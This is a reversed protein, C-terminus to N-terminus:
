PLGLVYSALFIQTIQSLRTFLSADSGLDTLSDEYNAM